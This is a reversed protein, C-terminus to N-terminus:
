RGLVPFVGLGTRVGGKKSRRQRYWLLLTQAVGLGRRELRVSRKARLAEVPELRSAALSPYLGATLGISITSVVRSAVPHLAGLGSVILPLLVM